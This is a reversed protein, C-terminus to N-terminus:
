TLWLKAHVDHCRGSLSLGVSYTGMVHSFPFFALGALIFCLFAYNRVWRYVLSHSLWDCCTRSWFITMCISWIGRCCVVAIVSAPMISAVSLLSREADHQVGFFKLFIFKYIYPLVFFSLIQCFWTGHCAVCRAGSLRCHRVNHDCVSIM